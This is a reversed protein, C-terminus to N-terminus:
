GMGCIGLFNLKERKSKAVKEGFRAVGNQWFEEFELLMDAFHIDQDKAYPNFFNFEMIAQILGM